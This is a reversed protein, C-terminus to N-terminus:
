ESIEFAVMIKEWSLYVLGEGDEEIIEFTLQEVMDNEEPDVKVRLVDKSEDYKYAGWQKPESNFIITWTEEGPITFLAYKGAPLAKGEVKLAKTTEFTTAENAGTRWVKDYPVLDGWITRGKVSPQSYDITVTAAGVKSKATAPPSKRQSKDEQANAGSVVMFLAVAMAAKIMTKM